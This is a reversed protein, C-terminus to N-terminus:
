QRSTHPRFKVGAVRQGEAQNNQISLACRCQLQKKAATCCIEGCVCIAGGRAAKSVTANPALVFSPWIASGRGVARYPQQDSYTYASVNALNTFRVYSLTLSAGPKVLLLGPVFNFDLSQLGTAGAGSQCAGGSSCVDAPCVCHAPCSMGQIHHIADKPSSLICDPSMCTGQFTVCGAASMFWAACSPM